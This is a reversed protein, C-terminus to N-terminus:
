DNNKSSREIKNLEKSAAYGYFIFFVGLFAMYDIFGSYPVIKLIVTLAIHLGVAIIALIGGYKFMKIKNAKYIFSLVLISLSILLFPAFVSESIENSYYLVFSGLGYFASIGWLTLEATEAKKKYKTILEKNNM